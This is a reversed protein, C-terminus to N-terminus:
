LAPRSGGRGRAGTIPGLTPTDVQEPRQRAETGGTSSEDRPGAFQNGAAGGGIARAVCPRPGQLAIRGVGGGSADARREKGAATEPARIVGVGDRGPAPLGGIAGGAAGGGIGDGQHGGGSGLDPNRARGDLLNLRALDRLRKCPSPSLRGSICRA